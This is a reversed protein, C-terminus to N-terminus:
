KGTSGLEGEGRESESLESVEELTPQEIKQVLMQAIKHGKEFIYTEKSLNIVGVKVEGRYGSDFVGGVVKIGKHSLSSKDWILGVYDKPIEMAVGTSIRVVEGPKVEMYEISFLDMGADDHHAYEPLRAESNLKKIKLNM